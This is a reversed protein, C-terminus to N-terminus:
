SVGTFPVETKATAVDYGADQVRNVLKDLDTLSSDYKVNARETAFNVTADTVGEAKNLVREVTRVCASCTMGLIPLDIHQTTM